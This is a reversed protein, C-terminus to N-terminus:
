THLIFYLRPCSPRRSPRVLYTTYLIFSSLKAALFSKLLSVAEADGKCKINCLIISVKNKTSSVKIRSVAEAAEAAESRAEGLAAEQIFYILHLPYLVAGRRTGRGAHGAARAAQTFYLTYLIFSLSLGTRGDARAAQPGSGRPERCTEDRPLLGGGRAGGGPPQANRCRRARAQRM